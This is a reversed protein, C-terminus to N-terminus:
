EQFIINDPKITIAIAPRTPAIAIADRLPETVKEDADRWSKLNVEPNWRFLTSLHENLDREEALEKLRSTDIIRSLRTTVKLSIDGDIVRTTGDISLDVNLFTILKDEVEKLKIAAEREAEKANIWESCLSRLKESDMTPRKM